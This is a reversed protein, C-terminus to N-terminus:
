RVKIGSIEGSVVGGRHLDCERSVSWMRNRGVPLAEYICVVVGRLKVCRWESPENFM